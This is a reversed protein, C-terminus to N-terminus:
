STETALPSHRSFDSAPDLAPLLGPLLDSKRPHSPLLSDRDSWASEMRQLARASEFSRWVEVPPSAGLEALLSWSRSSGAPQGSPGASNRPFPYLAGSPVTALLEAAHQGLDAGRPAAVLFGSSYAAGREIGAGTGEAFLLRQSQHPLDADLAAVYEAREDPDVFPM